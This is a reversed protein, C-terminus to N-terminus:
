PPTYSRRATHHDIVCAQGHKISSDESVHCFPAPDVYGVCSLSTCALLQLSVDMRNRVPPLPTGSRRIGRRHGVHDGVVKLDIISHVSRTRDDSVRLTAGIQTTLLRWIQVHQPPRLARRLPSSLWTHVHQPQRFADFHLCDSLQHLNLDTDKM